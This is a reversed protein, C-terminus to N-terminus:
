RVEDDLCKILRDLSYNAEGSREGEKLMARLTSLRMEESKPLETCISKEFAAIAMDALEDLKGAAIDKEIQEDWQRSAQLEEPPLESVAKELEELDMTM